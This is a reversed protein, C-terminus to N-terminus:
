RKGYVPTLWEAHDNTEGRVLAFYREQLRRTFPGPTGDGIPLRDLTLIPQIEHGSGCFFAEEAAYVETRDVTREIAEQQTIEQALGLVTRRTVSELISSTVSPTIAVGDRIMFFCSGPSESVHGDRTLFLVNDYGDIKGQMAALRSNSYNAAAKVRAPMANDSIRQWSSVAVHIGERVARQPPRALAGVMWGIPGTASMEGYGDVWVMVRIHVDEHLKNARVVEILAAEVMASSIDHEYRMVRMSYQLRDLHEKLRFIYMEEREANWYGRIGEFVGAGYKMGPTLVHVKADAYPVIRGNFSLFEPQAM